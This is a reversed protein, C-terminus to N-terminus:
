LTNVVVIGHRNACKEKRAGKKRQAAEAAQAYLPDEDEDFDDAGGFDMQARKRKGDGGVEEPAEDLGKAARKAQVQPYIRMLWPMRRDDTIKM